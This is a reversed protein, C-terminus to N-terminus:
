RGELEIVGIGSIKLEIRSRGDGVFGELHNSDIHTPKLTMDSAHIRGGNDVIAVIQSSLSRPLTVNINNYNNYIFLQSDEILSFDAKIPSYSTEIKSQGHTLSCDSITIPSFTTECILEGSVNEVKIPSYSTRFVISGDSATIDNASIQSYTTYAEVPGKINSLSIAGGTNQFIASGTSVTIDAGSIAGYRNEAKISGEIDSLELAAFSTTIDIPGEVDTISIASFAAKLVVGALPGNAELRMFQIDGEIRMKEPIEILIDLAVQNNTGQWPADLPTLISLVARNDGHNQLKMSILDLFRMAQSDSGARATKKYNVTIAGDDHTVIGISGALNKCGDIELVDLGDTSILMNGTQIVPESAGAFALCTLVSLLTLAIIRMKRSM